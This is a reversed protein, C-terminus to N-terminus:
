FGSSNSTGGERKMMLNLKGKMSEVSNLFDSM